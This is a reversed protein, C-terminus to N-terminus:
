TERCIGGLVWMQRCGMITGRNYKRKGFMSEDIEVTMNKGGIKKTDKHSLM